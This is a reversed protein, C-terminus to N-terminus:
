GIMAAEDGLGDYFRKLRQLAIRLVIKGSRASWGMRREASELGELHCCCRLAIDGLGPGLDRLAAEVRGRPGKIGVPGTEASELCQGWDPVAGGAGMQALEFDERLREGVRVLEPALFQGGEKDRRRSLAALPTESPALAPDRRAEAADTDVMASSELHALMAGLAARGAGTIYYRSVPGPADCSIWGKLAMAEAVDRDTVATRTQTGAETERVVVAKEMSMAVAMLAGRECLRRLLRLAEGQLREDSLNREPPHTPRIMVSEKAPSGTGGSKVLGAGLRRLAQDVLLDDRLAEYSRIRRLVTSAHCGTERALARIPAGTEIHRLYLKAPEPVWNPLSALMDGGCIAEGM